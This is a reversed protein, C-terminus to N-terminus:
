VPFWKVNRRVATHGSPQKEIKPRKCTLFCAWYWLFQWLLYLLNGFVLGFAYCFMKFATLIKCFHYLKAISRLWDGTRSVTTRNLYLFSRKDRNLVKHHLQKDIFFHFLFNFDFGLRSTSEDIESQFKNLKSIPFVLQQFRTMVTKLSEANGAQSLLWGYRVKWM